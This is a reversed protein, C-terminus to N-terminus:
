GKAKFNIVDRINLNKFKFRSSLFYISLILLTLFSVVGGLYIYNDNYKLSVTHKGAKLDFSVLGLSSKEVTSRKGDIDVYYGYYYIIPLIISSDNTADITYSPYGNSYSLLEISYSKELNLKQLKVKNKAANMNLYDFYLVDKMMESHRYKVANYMGQMSMSIFILIVLAVTFNNRSSLYYSSTISACIAAAALLRWLFQIAPFIPIHDSFLYWPFAKTSLLILILSSASLIKIKPNKTSFFCITSIILPIIGISLLLGRGSKGTSTPIQLLSEYIEPNFLYMDDFSKGMETFAYIDSYLFNYFLPYIYFFCLLIILFSNILLHKSIHLYNKKKITLLLVFFLIVAVIVSPINSLFILSSSLIFLVNGGRNSIMKYSAVLFLPLFAMAYVEGLSFRIYIDSILYPSLIFFIASIFAPKDLKLFQKGAYYSNFFALIIGCAFIAKIQFIDSGTVFYLPYSILMMFSTLPPYFLSWAYGFQGNTWFDFTFPFQGHTIQSNLSALRLAHPKWDHGSWIGGIFIPLLVVLLSIAVLSFVIAKDPLYKFNKM